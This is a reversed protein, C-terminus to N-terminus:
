LARLLTRASDILLRADEDTASGAPEYRKEPTWSTVSSWEAFLTEKVEREKGSLHLLVDLDHTRFSRYAQFESNTEPFGDWGLTVCIRAKLALEVVYGGLYVAGDFREATRLAEADTLREEALTRLDRHPIM